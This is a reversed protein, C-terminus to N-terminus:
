KDLNNHIPIKMITHVGKHNPNTNFIFEFDHHYLTHLREKVNKIGLGQNTKNEFLPQGNNKILIILWNDQQYIHMNVNLDTTDYSYGHKLSNEIIPQILMTPIMVGKINDEIKIDITLHDSFRMKMIDIYKNLVQVEKYVPILNVEKLILIERLLDGLNAVMDQAKKQDEKILASISNLTNFLFHPNLQSKLVEMKIDTLQKALVAKQIETKTTRKIYYYSYIITVFGVYGLFHLNSDSIITIVGQRSFLKSNVSETISVYVYSIVYLYLGFLLSFLFHVGIISRWKYEKDIMMKTIILILIVAPPVIILNAIIIDYTIQKWAINTYPKVEYLKLLVGKSIFVIHYMAVYGLLILFLKKDLYKKM